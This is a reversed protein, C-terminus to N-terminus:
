KILRKKADEVEAIGPDADKWLDLFKEYHEIAKRKKGQEEFIKGLMYFAKAYIDGNDLRVQPHSIIIEYSNRAKELNGDIYYTLALPEISEIYGNPVHGMSISFFYELSIAKEFNKVALNYNEKELEILGILRHYHRFARKDIANELSEKLEGATKEAEAISNLGLYAEAEYFLTERILELMYRSRKREIAIKKAEKYEKLAEIFNGYRSHMYALDTRHFTQLSKGLQIITESLKKMMDKISEFKGQSLYLRCLRIIGWVQPHVEAELLKRYEQEAKSLEGTLLYIDGRMLPIDIRTPALCFLIELEKLASDYKKRNILNKIWLHRAKVADPFNKFHQELIEGAENVLGLRTYNEVLNYLDVASTEEPYNRYAIEFHKTAKETEGFDSSYLIALLRNGLIDDPYLQVLRKLTELSKDFDKQRRYHEGQILLRERGSVRDFLEFAKQRYEKVKSANGEHGYLVALHRYAMALGPDLAVANELLPIAKKYEMKFYLRTGEFFFKQADPSNTTIEGIALDIDSAIKDAPLKVLTKIKRTLEDVIDNLNELGKGEASKTGLIDGKSADYLTINVQLNDGLRYYEGTIIQNFNSWSALKKLDEYSYNKTHELNFKSLVDLLRINPLVHIYKSQTLDHILLLPLVERLNDLSEDGTYNTFYLIALPIKDSPVSITYKYSWPQWILVAIIALAAVLAPIFLKKQILSTAFTERRPRIKTGLPFSEEINRFDSLLAEATQYRRERDKEMCILILRNLSESVEPNLKRPEKPLQSKHKLAVSLATDGKFPVRGTVMEYLIVGLAYIDSRQDAEEGEAQEPSIYDPTGIMMGTHTIGPAEVSRAIGFDMIKAQGKEDIMINQPKLDRHVVGLTHAEELGECVQKAIAITEEESLKGKRRIFSKLDEGLVYEMTIYPTEEEENLDYMKCVNRHAIKRALKLENKFREIMGKDAAIEPKLVKLAMEEDLKQDKVRYVRGMGGMGLEEMIEYRSAFTTGSTLKDTPTELTKTVPIEKSLPLPTACSKCFHSDSTNETHCKPCEVGM